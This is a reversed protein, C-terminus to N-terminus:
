KNLAENMMQTLFEDTQEVQKIIKELAQYHKIWPYTLEM